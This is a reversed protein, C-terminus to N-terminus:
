LDPRVFLEAELDEPTSKFYKLVIEKLVEDSFQMHAGRLLGYEIGGRKDLAQLGLWEEQYIKRDELKVVEGTTENVEAFWSSERPIVTTDEDFMFMVFKRLSALNKSYTENKLERENNIDALLNSGELYREFSQENNPDRYYQAPVLRGQVFPSWTSATLLSYASRCLWDRPACTQFKTIGNHQSGLTVLIRVPPDNCREVYARLFQGGQSFGLANIGHQTKSKPLAALQECVHDIYTTMNGFWGDTRDTGPDDDLSISHVLTGPLLAEVSLVVSKMGDSDYSDSLGHWIVVPLSASSGSVALLWSLALAGSLWRRSHM